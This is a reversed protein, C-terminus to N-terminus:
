VRKRRPPKSIPKKAGWEALKREIDQAVALATAPVVQAISRSGGRLRTILPQIFAEVEAFPVTKPKPRVWITQYKPPTKM